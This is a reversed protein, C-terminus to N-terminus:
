SRLIQERFQDGRDKYSRFMDQSACGPSLLLIDGPETLNLAQQIAEFFSSNILCPTLKKWLRKLKYASEGILVATKVNNNVLKLTKDFDMCKDRGGAILIINKQITKFSEIAKILADPNTSKSDNVIIIGLDNPIVEMRHLGIKFTSLGASINLPSIGIQFCFWSAVLANDYNHAGFFPLTSEEFLTIGNWKAFGHSRHLPCRTHGYNTFQHEGEDFKILAHDLQAVTKLLKLKTARYAEYNEYRDLHDSTINIVAALESKFNKITELQFSSVELVIGDYNKQDIVVESFPIGINGAAIVNKGSQNLIHTIMEVTTTKGNTGTIAWIPIHCFSSAFELEGVLKDKCKFAPSFFGHPDIGPSVVILSAELSLEKLVSSSIGFITKVDLAHLYNLSSDSQDVLVIEDTREKKALKAAAIGSVGAGIILIM